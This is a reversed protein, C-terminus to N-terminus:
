LQIGIRFALRNMLYKNESTSIEAENNGAWVTNSYTETNTKYTYSLSLNFGWKKTARFAWGIGAEAYIGTSYQYSPQQWPRIIPDVISIVEQDDELSINAGFSVLAFPKNKWDSFMKRGQIYIPLTRFRYPDYAAGAGIHWGNTKMGGQLRIDGTAEYGGWLPGGDAVVWPKWVSQAYSSSSFLLALLLAFRFSRM